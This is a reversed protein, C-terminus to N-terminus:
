SRIIVYLLVIMMLYLYIRSRVILSSSPGQENSITDGASNADDADFYGFGLKWRPQEMTSHRYYVCHRMKRTAINKHKKEKERERERKKKERERERKKKKERERERERRKM